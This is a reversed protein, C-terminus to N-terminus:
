LSSGSCLQCCVSLCVFVSFHREVKPSAPPNQTDSLTLSLHLNACLNRGKLLAGLSRHPEVLRQVGQGQFLSLQYTGAPLTYMLVQVANLPQHHLQLSEWFPLSPQSTAVVSHPEGEGASGTYTGVVGRPFSSVFHLVSALDLRSTLPRAEFLGAPVGRLHASSRHWVGKPSRFLRLYYDGHEFQYLMHVSLACPKELVLQM